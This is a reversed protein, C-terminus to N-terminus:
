LISVRGCPPLLLRALIAKVRDLRSEEGAEAVCGHKAIICVDRSM